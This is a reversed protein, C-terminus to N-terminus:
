SMGKKEIKMAIDKRQKPEDDCVSSPLSPMRVGPLQEELLVHDIPLQARMVELVEKQDLKHDRYSMSATLFRVNARPTLDVTPLWCSGVTADM